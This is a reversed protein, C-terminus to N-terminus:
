GRRRAWIVMSAAGGVHALPRVRSTEQYNHSKGIEVDFGAADLIGLIKAIRGRAFGPGDHFECFLNRVNGLMPAAEDLVADEAGEIDLKLFDVPGQLYDSLPVCEVEIPDLDDGLEARHTSLSGAMSWNRSRHFTARGGAAALACPLIEVHAWGNRAVNKRALDCL